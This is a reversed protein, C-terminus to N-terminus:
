PATEGSGSLYKKEEELEEKVIKMLQGKLDTQDKEQFQRRIYDLTYEGYYRLTVHEEPCASLYTYPNSSIGSTSSAITEFLEEIVPDTDLKGYAVAQAYCAQKHFDMFSQNSLMLLVTEAQSEPFIERVQEEYAEKETGAYVGEPERFEKLIYINDTVPTQGPEYDQDGALSFTLRAPFYRVATEEIGEPSIRYVQYLAMVSVTIEESLGASGTLFSFGGPATNTMQHRPVELMLHSECQFLSYPQSGYPPVIACHELIAASVAAELYDSTRIGSSSSDEERNKSSEDPSLEEEATHPILEVAAAEEEPLLEPWEFVILSPATRGPVTELLMSGKRAQLLSLNRIHNLVITVSHDFGWDEGVTLSNVSERSFTRFGKITCQFSDQSDRCHFVAFGPKNGKESHFGVILKEPLTDSEYIGFISVDSGCMSGIQAALYEQSFHAPLSEMEWLWRIHPNEEGAYGAALLVEGRATQIVLFFRDNGDHTDVRWIKEARELKQRARDSLLSDEWAEGLSETGSGYNFFAFLEEESYEAVGLGGLLTWSGSGSLGGTDREMLTRDATFVYEPANEATYSFDYWPADYLIERVHYPVGFLEERASVPSTLFCVAAAGCVLIGAAAIWFSPKRYNLVTRIREGVGTEGFALPCATVASRNAGCSLLTRAYNKKDESCMTRIVREDCALEIDRCLLIYAAWCLPNFWYVSLLLFGLPKWWHDHRKLHAKEHAVVCALQTEDLHSPLYIRPFLIGFIFPANVQDCLWLNGELRVSAAVRRHLRLASGLAYLAMVAMGTVWLLSAANLVVQMPNVSDGPDPAMVASLVPNIVHDVSEIGSEIAPATDYLIERPIPEASPILSLASEPSLPCVLRIGVLLWLGCVIARPAKKLLLRLLLVALVVWGASISMNLIKIFITEM